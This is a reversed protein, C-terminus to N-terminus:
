LLQASPKGMGTVLTDFSWQDPHTPLNSQFNSNGSFVRELENIRVNQQTRTPPCTLWPWCAVGRQQWHVAETKRPKVSIYRTITIPEGVVSFRRTSLSTQLTQILIVQKKSTHRYWTYDLLIFVASYREEHVSSNLGPATCQRWYHWHWKLHLHCQHHQASVLVWAGPFINVFRIWFNSGRGITPYM